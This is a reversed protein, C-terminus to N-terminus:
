RDERAVDHFVMFNNILIEDMRRWAQFCHLDHEASESEIHRSENALHESGSHIREGERELIRTVPDQALWDIQLGDVLQRLERAIAVDRQAHGLGIPSSIYLARKRGDSRHVTADRLPRTEVFERLALNVQVPKRAHPLHGAQEVTELRGGTIGALAKGDSYPTVRDDTGHIVLVPCRVREALARQDRRTWPAAGAAEFSMALTQGDTEHAWSTSDEIQKTSHPEPLMRKSWWQVFDTYGGHTWYHTNFKGLGRAAPPRRRLLNKGRPSMAVRMSVSRATVPFMPGVFAIGEVRKPHEAALLLARQAGRSLAVCVARDVGCADLVNVADQTFEREDYQRVETPRDSRGNGRPDFTLVRFHRAFYPIQAKWVRSHVFTWTPLFLVTQEGEGYSEWFVRVGDREIFGDEDPYRARSQEGLLRSEKAEVVTM